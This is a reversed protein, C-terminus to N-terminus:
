MLETRDSRYAPDTPHLPIHEQLAGKYANDIPRDPIRETYEGKYVTDTPDHLTQQAFDRQYHSHKRLQHCELVFSLFFFFMLHFGVVIRAMAAGGNSVYTILRPVDFFVSNPVAVSQTIASGSGPDFDQCFVFDNFSPPLDLTHAITNHCAASVDGCFLISTIAAVIWFLVLVVDLALRIWIQARTMRCIALVWASWRSSTRSRTNFPRSSFITVVISLVGCGIGIFTRDPTSCGYGRFVGVTYMTFGFYLGFLFSQLIRAAIIIEAFHRFPHLYM